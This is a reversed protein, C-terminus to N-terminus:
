GRSAPLLRPAGLFPHAEAWRGRRECYGPCRGRGAPTGRFHGARTRGRPGAGPLRATGAIHTRVEGPELTASQGM